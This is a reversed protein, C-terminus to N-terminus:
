GPATIGAITLYAVSTRAKSAECLSLLGATFVLHLVLM